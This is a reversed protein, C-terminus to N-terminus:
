PTHSWKGDRHALTRGCLPCYFTDKVGTFYFCWPRCCADIVSASYRAELAKRQAEKNRAGAAGYESFSELM